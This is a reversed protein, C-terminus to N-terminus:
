RVPVEDRPVPRVQGNAPQLRGSHFDELTQALEHRTEPTDPTLTVKGNEDFKASWKM